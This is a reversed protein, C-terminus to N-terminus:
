IIELLLLVLVIFGIFMAIIGWIQGVRILWYLKVRNEPDSLFDKKHPM